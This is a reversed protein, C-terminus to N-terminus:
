SVHLGGRRERTRREEGQIEISRIRRDQRRRSVGGIQKLTEVAKLVGIAAIFVEARHAYNRFMDWSACAPSLLIADGPQSLDFALDVAEEMSEARHVPCADGIAEAVLPGDRGIQVVARANKVAGQMPSFDQGKGDGGAILVVPVSFGLLAAVTAGVNTGKSDDYFARSNIEAVFQVRHPLGEFTKLAPILGDYPLPATPPEAANRSRRGEQSPLGIARCLALAALANAANHLGAIPLKDVPLLTEEGEALWLRDKRRTLGYSVPSPHASMEISFTSIARGPLAMAMSMPDDRNLVQVGSGAFVRAKAAAYDDLGAYRDMHDQSINLVTAADPHLSSTTELQFSSLELVWVDPDKGLTERNDLAELVPLGINGAVVTDLGVAACLHGVLSTVTSKGNSGTIAIVKSRSHKIARAFLEVDGAVDKGAAIARQIEPTALAVGPSVVILDAWDFDAAQFGGLTLPVEPFAERLHQAHPPEDRTDTARVSADHELLWRVCSAGTDGLGVVLAKVNSFSSAQRNM